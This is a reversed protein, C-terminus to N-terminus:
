WNINLYIAKFWTGQIIAKFLMGQIIAKFLMGQIIAKFWKKFTYALYRKQIVVKFWTESHINWIRKKLDHKKFTHALYRKQIYWVWVMM